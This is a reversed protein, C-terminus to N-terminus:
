ASMLNREAQGLGKRTSSFTSDKVITGFEGFQGVNSTVGGVLGGVTGSVFASTATNTVLDGADFDRDGFAVDTLYSSSGSIAGCEVGCLAGKLISGSLTGAQTLGQNKAFQFGISSASSVASTGGTVAGSIADKAITKADLTDGEIGNTARDLTKVGAKIASGVPAGYAAATAWGIPGTGAALVTTTIAGVGTLINSFLSTMDQQKKDFSEIYEVAEEFSVEGNNYKELMDDCDSSSLGFDTAEKISNWTNGLFGQKDKTEQLKEELFISEDKSTSVKKRQNTKPYLYFSGTEQQLGQVTNSM